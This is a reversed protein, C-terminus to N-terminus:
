PPGCNRLPAEEASRRGGCKACKLKPKLEAMALTDPGLRTKLLDLDLEQHRHCTPNQCHATVVMKADILSQFPGPQWQTCIYVVNGRDFLAHEPFTQWSRPNHALDSGHSNM